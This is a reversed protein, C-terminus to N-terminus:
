RGAHIPLAGRLAEVVFPREAARMLEFEAPTYVLMDEAVSTALLAPMYARFRDVFPLEAPGVIMVDIDSEPVATGRARSGIIWAAPARNSALLPRLAALFRELQADCVEQRSRFGEDIARADAIGACEGKRGSFRERTVGAM